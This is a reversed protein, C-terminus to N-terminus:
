TEGTTCTINCLFVLKCCFRELHMSYEVVCFVCTIEGLVRKRVYVLEDTLLELQLLM